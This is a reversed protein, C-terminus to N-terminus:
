NTKIIDTINIFQVGVDLEEKKIKNIIKKIHALTFNYKVLEDSSYVITFVDDDSGKALTLKPTITYQGCVIILKRKESESNYKLSILYVKKDTKPPNVNEKIQKKVNNITKESLEKLQKGRYFIHHKTVDLIKNIKKLEM